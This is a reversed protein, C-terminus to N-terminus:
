EADDRSFAWFQQNWWRGGLQYDGSFKYMQRGWQDSSVHAPDPQDSARRDTLSIISATM